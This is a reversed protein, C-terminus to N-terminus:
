FSLVSIGHPRKCILAIEASPEKLEVIEADYSKIDEKIKEPCNSALFVKKCKGLRLNKLTRKCGFVLNKEKLAKKLESLSM